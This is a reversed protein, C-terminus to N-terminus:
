KTETRTHQRHSYTVEGKGKRKFTAMISGSRAFLKVISELAESADRCESAAAWVENGWCNKVHKILNGTSSKDKTDLFRRPTYKYSIGMCKFAHCRRQNIYEIEPVPEYFAYVPSKWDKSM